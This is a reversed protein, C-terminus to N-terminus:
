KSVKFTSGDTEDALNNGWVFVNQEQNRNGGEITSEDSFLQMEKYRNKYNDKNISRYGEYLMKNQRMKIWQIYDNKINKHHPNLKSSVDKHENASENPSYREDWWTRPLIRETELHWRRGVGKWDKTPVFRDSLFDEHKNRNVTDVEYDDERRRRNEIRNWKQIPLLKWYIKGGNQHRNSVPAIQM